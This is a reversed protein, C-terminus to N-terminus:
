NRRGPEVQRRHRGPQQAYRISVNSCTGSVSASCTTLLSCLRSFGNM